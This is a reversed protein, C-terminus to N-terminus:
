LNEGSTDHKCTLKRIGRDSVIEASERSRAPDVNAEVVVVGVLFDELEDFDVLVM